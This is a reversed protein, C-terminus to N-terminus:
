ISSPNSDEVEYSPPKWQVSEIIFDTVLETYKDDRKTTMVAVPIEPLNSIRERVMM